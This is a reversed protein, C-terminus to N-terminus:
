EAAYRGFFTSAISTKTRYHAEEEAPMGNDFLWPRHQALFGDGAVRVAPIRPQSSLIDEAVPNPRPVYVFFTTDVGVHYVNRELPHRFFRRYYSRITFGQEPNGFPLDANVRRSHIDLALGVKVVNYRRGLTLLRTLFDEAPPAPLELDPDTFIFPRDLGTLMAARRVARRPGINRFHLVQATAPFAKSQLYDLLPAYTSGQDMVTINPFGHAVFWDVTDRLYTLQDFSNIYVPIQRRLDGETQGLWVPLTSM